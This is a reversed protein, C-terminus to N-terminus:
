SVAEPEVDADDNDDPRKLQGITPEPATTPLQVDSGIVALVTRLSVRAFDYLTEIADAGAILRELDGDEYAVGPSDHLLGAVTIDGYSAESAFHITGFVVRADRDSEKEPAYDVFWSGHAKRSRASSARVRVVDPSSLHFHERSTARTLAAGREIGM